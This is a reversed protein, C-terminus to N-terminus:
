IFDQFWRPRRSEPCEEFYSRLENDFGWVWVQLDAEDEYLETINNKDEFTYVPPELNELNMIVVSLQLHRLVVHAFEHAIVAM